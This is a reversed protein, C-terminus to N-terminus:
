KLSSRHEWFLAGMPGLVSYGIKRLTKRPRLAGKPHKSMKTLKKQFVITIKLVANELRLYLASKLRERKTLNQNESILQQSFIDGILIWYSVVIDSTM